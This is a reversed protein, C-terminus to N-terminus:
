CDFCYDFDYDEVLVCCGEEGYDLFNLFVFLVFFFLWIM